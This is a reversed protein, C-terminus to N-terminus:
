LASGRELLRSVADRLADEGLAIRPPDDWADQYESAWYAFPDLRHDDPPLHLQCEWWIRRSGEYLALDGKRIECAIASADRILIAPERKSPNPYTM